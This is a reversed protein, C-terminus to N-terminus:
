PLFFFVHKITSLFFRFILFRKQEDFLHAIHFHENIRIRVHPERSTQFSINRLPTTVELSDELLIAGHHFGRKEIVDCWQHRVCVYDNRTSAVVFNGDFQDDLVHVRLELQPAEFEALFQGMREDTM